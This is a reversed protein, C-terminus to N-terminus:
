NKPLQQLALKYASRKLAAGNGFLIHAYRDGGIKQVHDVYATVANLAGWITEEGAPIKVGNNIGDTFVEVVKGREKVINACRTEYSRRLVPDTVVRAPARPIPLLQEVFTPFLRHELQAAHM